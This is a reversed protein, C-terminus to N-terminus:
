NHPALIIETVYKLTTFFRNISINCTKGCHKWIETRPRITLYTCAGAPPHSPHNRYPRPLSHKVTIESALDASPTAAWTESIM